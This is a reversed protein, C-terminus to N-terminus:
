DAITVARYLHADESAQAVMFAALDARSVTSRIGTEVDPGVRCQGTRLGETLRAPRVIVWERDSRRVLREQRELDAFRDRDFLARLRSGLSARDASDGVGAATATVIRPVLFQEMATLINATGDSPTVGPPRDSGVGIASCVADADRVLREVSPVDFADGEIVTLGDYALHDIPYERPDDAHTRVHHGAELARETLARGMGDETGFIALRM